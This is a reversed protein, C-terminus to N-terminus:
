DIRAQHPTHIVVVERHEFEDGVLEARLAGDTAAAAVVVQNFLDAALGSRGYAPAHPDLAHEFQDLLQIDLPLARRNVGVSDQRVCRKQWLGHTHHLGQATCADTHLHVARGRCLAHAAHLRLELLCIGTARMARQNKAAILHLAAHDGDLM